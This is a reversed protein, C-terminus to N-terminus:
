IRLKKLIRLVETQKCLEIVEQLVAVRFFFFFNSDVTRVELQVTATNVSRVHFLDVEFDLGSREPGDEISDEEWLQDGFGLSWDM